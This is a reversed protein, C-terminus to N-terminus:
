AVFNTKGPSHDPSVQFAYRQSTSDACVVDISTAFDPVESESMYDCLGLHDTSDVTSEQTTRDEYKQPSSSCTQESSTSDSYKM